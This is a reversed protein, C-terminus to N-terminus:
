FQVCGVLHLVLVFASFLLETNNPNKAKVAPSSVNTNGLISFKISNLHGGDLRLAAVPSPNM